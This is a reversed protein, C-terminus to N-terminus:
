CHDWLLSRRFLSQGSQGPGNLAQALKGLAIKGKALVVMSKM